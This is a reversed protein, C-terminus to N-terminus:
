YPNVVVSYTFMENLIMNSEKMNATMPLKGVQHSSPVDGFTWGSSIDPQIHHAGVLM